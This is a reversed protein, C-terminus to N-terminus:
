QCNKQSEFLWRDGKVIVPYGCTWPERPLQPTWTVINGFGTDFPGFHNAANVLSERTLNNEIHGAKILQYFLYGAHYYNIAIFGTIDVNPAYRAM